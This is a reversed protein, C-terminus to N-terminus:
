RIKVAKIFAHHPGIRETTLRVPFSLWLDVLESLVIERVHTNDRWHSLPKSYYVVYYMSKLLGSFGNKRFKNRLRASKPVTTSPEELHKVSYQSEVSTYIYLAGGLELVRFCEQFTMSLSALHDLAAM